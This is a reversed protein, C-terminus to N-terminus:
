RGDHRELSEHAAVQAPRGGEPLSVKAAPRTGSVAGVYVAAIVMLGGVLVEATIPQGLMAAGLGVAVVPMAAVAYVTASATLRRIVYLFLQFLGVSGLVVLYGVALVTEPERPLTWREGAVFSGAALLVTGALMGIANMNVPHVDRLAKAVVSSAAIAVAGLVAAILYSRGFNGGLTGLSLIAIGAVALVGGVVGRLSLREQGLLVAIALTFLPVAAVIVATPGAALGVLAYYLFAYAAGFGLLGYVVAGWAARGRALPVRWVRAILFFLLAALAFRLTAGFLPPMERNSLSVAIFNSGGIVVAGAFAAYTKSDPAPNMARVDGV